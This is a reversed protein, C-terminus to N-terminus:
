LELQAYNSELAKILGKMSELNVNDVDYDMLEGAELYKYRMFNSIDLAQSGRIRLTYDKLTGAYGEKIIFRDVPFSYMGPLPEM